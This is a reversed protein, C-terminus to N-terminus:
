KCSAHRELRAKQVFKLFHDMSIVNRESDCEETASALVRKAVTPNSVLKLLYQVEGQVREREASADCVDCGLSEISLRLSALKEQRVKEKTLLSHYSQETAIIREAQLNENAALEELLGCLHRYNKVENELLEQESACEQAKRHLEELVNTKASMLNNAEDEAESTSQLLAETSWKCAAAQSRLKAVKEMLTAAGEDAAITKRRLRERSRQLDQLGRSMRATVTEDRGAMLATGKDRFLVSTTSEATTQLAEAEAALDKSRKRIASLLKRTDAVTNRLVSERAYSGEEEASTSHLEYQPSTVSRKILPGLLLNHLYVVTRWLRLLHVFESDMQSEHMEGHFGGSTPEEVKDDTGFTSSVEKLVTRMDAELAAFCKERAELFGRYRRLCEAEVQEEEGASKLVRVVEDSSPPHVSFIGTLCKAAAVSSILQQEQSSRKASNGQISSLASQISKCVSALESQLTTASM